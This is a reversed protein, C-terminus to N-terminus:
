TLLHTEPLPTQFENLYRSSLKFSHSLFDLLEFDSEIVWGLITNCINKKHKYCFIKYM